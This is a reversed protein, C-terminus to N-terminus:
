NFPTIMQKHNGRAKINKRAFLLAVSNQGLGGGGGEKEEKEEEEEEEEVEVEVVM